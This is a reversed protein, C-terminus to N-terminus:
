NCCNGGKSAFQHEPAASVPETPVQLDDLLDYFEWDLGDPDRVWVKDQIAHCCHIAREEKRVLGAALLRERAAQFSETSSFRLGFHEVRSGPQAEPAANLSLVLPPDAVVFRAYTDTRKDPECGFAATYFADSAPLDRVGLAIHLHHSM